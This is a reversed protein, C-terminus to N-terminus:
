SLGALFRELTTVFLPPAEQMPYHGCETFPAVVLKDCLPTFLRTFFARAYKNLM